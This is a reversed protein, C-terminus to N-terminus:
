RALVEVPGGTLGHVLQLLPRHPCHAPVFSERFPQKRGVGAARTARSCDNSPHVWVTDLSRHPTM